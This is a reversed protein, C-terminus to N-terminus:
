EGVAKSESAWSGVAEAESPVVRVGRFRRHGKQASKRWGGPQGPRGQGPSGLELCGAERQVESVSLEQRVQANSAGKVPVEAGESRHERSM